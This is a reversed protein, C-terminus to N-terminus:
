FYFNNSGHSVPLTQRAKKPEISPFAVRNVYKTMSRIPMTFNRLWVKFSRGIYWANRTKKEECIASEIRNFIKNLSLCQFFALFFHIKRYQSQYNIQWTNCKDNLGYIDCVIILSQLMFFFVNLCIAQCGVIYWKACKLRTDVNKTMAFDENRAKNVHTLILWMMMVGICHCLFIM